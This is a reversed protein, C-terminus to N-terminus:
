HLDSIGVIALLKGPLWKILSASVSTSVSWGCLSLNLSILSFNPPPLIVDVSFTRDLWTVPFQLMVLRVSGGVLHAHFIRSFPWSLNRSREYFQWVITVGTFQMPNREGVVNTTMIAWNKFLIFYLGPSLIYAHKYCYWYGKCTKTKKVYNKIRM